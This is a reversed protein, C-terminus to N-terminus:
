QVHDIVGLRCGFGNFWTQNIATPISFPLFYGALRTAPYGPVRTGPRRLRFYKTHLQAPLRRRPHVSYSRHFKPFELQFNNLYMPIISLLAKTTRRFIDLSVDQAFYGLVKIPESSFLTRRYRPVIFRQLYVRWSYKIM